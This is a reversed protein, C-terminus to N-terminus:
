RTPSLDFGFSEDLYNNEIIADMFTSAGFADFISCGGNVPLEDSAQTEASDISEVVRELIANPPSGDHSTIWMRLQPFLKELRSKGGHPSADPKPSTCESDQPHQRAITDERAHDLRLLKRAVTRALGHRPTLQQIVSRLTDLSGRRESEMRTTDSKCYFLPLAAVLCWFPHMSTLLAVHERYVIEEYLAAMCASAVLCANSCQWHKERQSALAQSLIVVGLYCINLETAPFSYPNRTGTASHPHLEPPLQKIWGELLGSVSDEEEQALQKSFKSAVQGMISALMADAVFYKAVESIPDNFDAYTLAPVEFDSPKLMPPRGTILAHACDSSQAEYTLSRVEREPQVGSVHLFWWVRRRNPADRETDYTSRQHLGMQFALRLAAGTAHWAGNLSVIEPPDPSWLTLICLSRLVAFMDSEVDLFLLLKVKEYLANTRSFSDPLSPHRLLSGALCVAQQLLISSGPSELERRDIFPLVHALSSFFGDYLARRESPRPLLDAESAELIKSQYATAPSIRRIEAGPLNTLPNDSLDRNDVDQLVSHQAIYAQARSGHGPTATNESLTSTASQSPGPGLIKSIDAFSGTAPPPSSPPCIAQRSKPKRM